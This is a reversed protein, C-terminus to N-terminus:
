EEIELAEAMLVGAAFTGKANVITESTLLAFFADQSLDDGEKGKFDTDNDTNVTIDLVSLQPQAFSDVM